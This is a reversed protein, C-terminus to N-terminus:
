RIAVTAVSRMAHGSSRKAMVLLWEGIVLLREGSKPVARNM